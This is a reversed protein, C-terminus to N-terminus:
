GKPTTKELKRAADEVGRLAAEYCKGNLSRQYARPSEVYFLHARVAWDRALGALKHKQSRWSRRLQQAQKRYM